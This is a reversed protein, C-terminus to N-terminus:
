KPAAQAEASEVAELESAPPPAVNPDYRLVYGSGRVTFIMQPEVGGNSLKTRLRNIHVEIVNTVGEWDPQWLFECLMRRTVAKGQNRMLIELIRFETPTLPILRGNRLVKRSTLDMYVQGSELVSKPRTKSRIMAAEVRARLEDLTFPKILFDDAGAELGALREQRYELPTLILINANENAERVCRLVGLGSEDELALDIIVVHFAEAEALKLGAAGAVALSCEYGQDALGQTIARGLIPDDEVVLLKVPPPTQNM